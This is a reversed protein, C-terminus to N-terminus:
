FFSNKPKADVTGWGLDEWITNLKGMLASEFIMERDIFKEVFEVLENPDDHGRLAITEFGYPNQRLYGWVIKDGDTLRQVSNLKFLELLKNYNQASKIHIPTAKQGIKFKSYEKIGTPMMIDLIPNNKYARKFELVKSNLEDKDSDHLIDIIIQKMFVRFSKPFSSRVVDFGKIEPENVDLSNKNVIWMAYRKKASGWFARRAIMEQKFNWRHTKANHFKLAYVDFTSNLYSQVKQTEILTRSILEREDNGGYELRILPEAPFFVSNHVLIDNAFFTHPTDVMGVDYVYEESIGLDEISTIEDLEINFIERM